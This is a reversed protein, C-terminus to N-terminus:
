KKKYYAFEMNYIARGKSLSRLITSYGFMRRMPIYSRVKSFNNFNKNFFILGEKSSIDKIINGLYKSPSLVEVKMIPELLVPNALNLAKKFAISSAIYFANESSDVEHFTGDVLEIKIDVVPCGYLIGLKLNEFFSKEIIKFYEKPISGGKILNVFKYGSGIKRPIINIIVHGYQGRGGSQKIYKGEISKVTKSITERYSVKPNTKLLEINYERKLRELFVDIHLEGMGSILIKGSEPDSSIYITPDESSLKKIYYILKEQQNNNKPELLYTIVPEPFLIKEYCYFKDKYLTDGTNVNKLGIVASIDGCSVSKIDEKFNAHMRLIRSLKYKKRDSSNFIFDGVSLKGSYIRIYSMKGSYSDNVTKFVFSSFPKKETCIIKRKKMFEDLYEVKKKYPSPLFLAIGDLLNQIGKNKFASGCFIPLIELKLTRKKILKLIDSNSINNDLYKEIYKEYPEILIEILKKRKNLYKKDKINLTEIKKGKDHFKFIKMHILDIVGNFVGNKFYPYNITLIKVNFKKKIENCVKKFNAGVRDMKNVFAIRPLKYKNIQNWVTESQAQVGSVACFVICAGDLVRMSREVEATFDVHGPTDIINIKFEKDLNIGKWFVCTSASNITIGREKEQDMWDMTAEGDHVEGLKHKKGTFYLIRETLTTKGADIHACIGINRINKM